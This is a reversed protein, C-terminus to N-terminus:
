RKNQKTELHRLLKSPKMAESSLWDGCIISLPSPAHFYGIAFVGFKLDNEQYQRNFAAKKKKPTLPEETEESPRKERQLSVKLLHGNKVWEAVHGLCADQHSNLNIWLCIFSLIQDSKFYFM